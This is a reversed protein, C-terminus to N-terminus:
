SGAECFTAESTWLPSGDPLAIQATVSLYERGRKEFRAAVVGTVTLVVDAAASTHSTVQQETQLLPREVVTQLALITLNAAIPPYLRGARLAPHDAGASAWYRQNAARSITLALPGFRAGEDIGGFPL